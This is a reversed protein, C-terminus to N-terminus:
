LTSVKNALFHFLFSLCIKEYNLINTYKIKAIKYVDNKCAFISFLHFM